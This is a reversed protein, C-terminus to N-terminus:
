VHTRNKACHEIIFDRIKQAAPSMPKAKSWSLYVTRIFDEDKDSIPIVAVKESEMAPVMPLVAVGFKLGVYQLAANCERVEFVTNQIAGHRLFVHDTQSRLSTGTELIILPEKAFDEFVVSRKKSLPHGSPVVLYLPQRMVPVSEAWDGRHMGFGMDLAGSQVRSFIEYSPGEAFHFKIHRDPYEQYFAEVLEPIFSASISHFYGLKVIQEAEGAMQRLTDRGEDLLAMSQRVYPLFQQGYVTLAIKRNEKQFLKVGLEKELEGIAYSLSPQSIHLEEAARTYHLVRAMTQFYQLQLLTM